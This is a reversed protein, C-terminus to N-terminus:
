RTKTKELLIFYVASFGPNIRSSLKFRNGDAWYRLLICINLGFNVLKKVFLESIFKYCM